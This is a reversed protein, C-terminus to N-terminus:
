AHVQVQVALAGSVSATESARRQYSRGACLRQGHVIVVANAVNAQPLEGDVNTHNFRTSGANEFQRCLLWEESLRLHVFGFQEVNDAPSFVAGAMMKRVTM